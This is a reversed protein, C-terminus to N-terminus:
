PRSYIFNGGYISVNLVRSDGTALNSYEVEVLEFQFTTGEVGNPDPIVHFYMDLMGNGLHALHGPQADVKSNIVIGSSAFSGGGSDQQWAMGNSNATGHVILKLRTVRVGCKPDGSGQFTSKLAVFGPEGPQVLRGVPNGTEAAVVKLDPCSPLQRGMDVQQVPTTKEVQGCGATILLGVFALAMLKMM